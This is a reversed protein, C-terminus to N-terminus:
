GRRAGDVSYRGAGALGIAAFAMAYLLAHEGDGLVEGHHAGFVAVLMTIVAPIAFWRVRFGVLIMVGCVLEGFICLALSAPHGIGLPDAFTSSKTSFSALKSWGHNFAILGGFGVRALLLGVDLGHKDLARKFTDLM